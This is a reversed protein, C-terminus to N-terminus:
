QTPAVQTSLHLILVTTLVAYCVVSFILMGVSIGTFLILRLAVSCLTHEPVWMNSPLQRAVEVDIESKLTSQNELKALM